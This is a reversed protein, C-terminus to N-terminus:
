IDGNSPWSLQVHASRILGVLVATYFAM